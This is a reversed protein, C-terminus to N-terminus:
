KRMSEIKRLVKGICQKCVDNEQKDCNAIVEDEKKFIMLSYHDGRKVEKKCLNCTFAFKM